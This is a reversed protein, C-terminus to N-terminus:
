GESTRAAWRASFVQTEPWTAYFTAGPDFLLLSGELAERSITEGPGGFRQRFMRNPGSVRSRTREGRRASTSRDKGSIRRVCRLLECHHFKKADRIPRTTPESTLASLRMQAPNRGASSFSASMAVVLAKMGATKKRLTTSGWRLGNTGDWVSACHPSTPPTTHRTGRM